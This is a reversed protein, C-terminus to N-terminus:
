DRILQETSTKWAILLSQSTPASTAAPVKVHKLQAAGVLESQLGLSRASQETKGSLLEVTLPLLAFSVVFEEIAPELVLSFPSDGAKWGISFSVPNSATTSATWRANTALPWVHLILTSLPM